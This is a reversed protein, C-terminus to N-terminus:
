EELDEDTVWGQQEAYAENMDAVYRPDPNESFIVAITEMANRMINPYMTVAAAVMSSYADGAHKVIRRAAENEGVQSILRALENSISQRANANDSSKYIVYNKDHETMYRGNNYQTWEQESVSSYDQGVLQHLVNVFNQYAGNDYFMEEVADVFNDLVIKVQSAPKAIKSTAYRNYRAIAAEGSVVEGTEKNTAYIYQRVKEPNTALTNMRNVTRTRFSSSSLLNQIQPTIEAELGQSRYYQLQQNVMERLNEKALRLARAHMAALMQKGNQPPKKM